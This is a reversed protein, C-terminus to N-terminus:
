PVQERHTQRPIAKETTDHLSPPEPRMGATEGPKESVATPAASVAGQDSLHSVYQTKERRSVSMSTEFHWSYIKERIREQERKSRVEHHFKDRVNSEMRFVISPDRVLGQIELDGGGGHAASVMMRLVVM